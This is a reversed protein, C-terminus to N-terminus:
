RFSQRRLFKHFSLFTIADINGSEDSSVTKYTVAEVLHDISADNDIPFPSISPIDIQKSTFNKMNWIMVGFLFFLCIAIFYIFKKIM